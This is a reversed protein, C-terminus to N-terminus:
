CIDNTRQQSLLREFRGMQVFDRLTFILFQFRFGNLSVFAFLFKSSRVLVILEVMVELTEETLQCSKGM